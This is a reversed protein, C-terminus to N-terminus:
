PFILGWAAESSLSQGAQVHTLADDLLKKGNENTVVGGDRLKQIAGVAETYRSYKDGATLIALLAHIARIQIKGADATGDQYPDLQLGQTINAIQDSASCLGSRMSAGSVLAAVLYPNEPRVQHDGDADLLDRIAEFVERRTLAAFSDEYSAGDGRTVTIKPLKGSAELDLLFSTYEGTRTPSLHCSSLYAAVLDEIHDTDFTAESLIDLATTADLSQVASFLDNSM